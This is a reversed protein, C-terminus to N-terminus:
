MDTTARSTLIGRSRFDSVWGGQKIIWESLHVKTIEAFTDVIANVYGPHGQSVCDAAFAGAVAFLAVVRGWTIVSNKLMAEAINEFTTRVTVETSLTMNLQRSLDKYLYPYMTELENGVYQIERSVPTPRIGTAQMELKLSLLGLKRLRNYIYERCLVRSQKVVEVMDPPGALKLGVVSVPDIHTLVYRGKKLRNVM